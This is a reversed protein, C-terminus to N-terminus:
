KVEGTERSTSRLKRMDEIGEEFEKDSMGVIRKNVSYTYHVWFVDTFEAVQKILVMLVVYTTLMLASAVTVYGLWFIVNNTTEVM